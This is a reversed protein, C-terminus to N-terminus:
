CIFFNKDIYLKQNILNFLASTKGSGSGDVILKGYPHDSIQLWNPNHEIM